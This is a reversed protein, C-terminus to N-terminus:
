VRAPPGDGSEADGAQAPVPGPVADGAGALAPPAASRRRRRWRSPRVAPPQWGKLRLAQKEVLHWSGFALVFSVALSALFYGVFGLAPVGYKAMVQQVVFSYIYLGYSYDTRQGIGQLRAPLRIALWLIVYEYALLAPGFFEGRLAFWTVVVLAVVGLLDNMPIKDRYLDAAAGAMFMFGYWLLWTQSFEGLLPVPGFTGGSWLTPLGFRLVEYHNWCLVGFLGVVSALVLWRARRLVALLAMAAVVLYCLIEYSLTWLSGNVLSRRSMEGYPTDWRFLDVIGGQRLGGWWNQSLYNLAGTPHRLLGGLTGRDLYWLVPAVVLATVLLCVWLGPLIRLARHWLFRPLPSRRASRTILFGSIGFFGAVALGPVDVVTTLPRAYGLVAAHALVVAISFCLRLFGFSNARGTYATALPATRLLRGGM